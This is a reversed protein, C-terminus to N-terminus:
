GPQSGTNRALIERAINAIKTRRDQAERRISAYADQENMEESAMLVGKAQEIVKRDDLAQELSDVEGRLEMLQLHRSMAIIMSPLLQEENIPEVLYSMVHDHSAREVLDISAQETVLMAPLPREAACRILVNIADGDELQVGAIVMSADGTERYRSKLEDCRTCVAEVRVADPLGKEILRRTADSAHAVIVSEPLSVEQAHV